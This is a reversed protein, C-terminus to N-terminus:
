TRRVAIVTMSGALRGGAGTGPEVLGVVIRVVAQLWPHGTATHAVSRRRDGTSAAAFLGIGVVLPGNDVVLRGIGPEIQGSAAATGAAIPPVFCRASSWQRFTPACVVAVPAAAAAAVSGTVAVAVRAVSVVAVPPALPAAVAVPLCRRVTGVPVPRSRAWSHPCPIPRVVM